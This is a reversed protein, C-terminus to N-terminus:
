IIIIVIFIDQVSLPLVCQGKYVFVGCTVFFTQCADAPTVFIKPLHRCTNAGLLPCTTPSPIWITTERHTWTTTTPPPTAYAVGVVFVFPLCVSPCSFGMLVSSLIQM